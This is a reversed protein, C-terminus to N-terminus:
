RGRRTLELYEQRVATVAPLNPDADKWIALADQYARQAGPSDNLRALARGLAARVFGDVEGDIGANRMLAEFTAGAEEYQGAAFQSLGRLYIAGGGFIARPYPLASELVRVAEAPRGRAFLIRAHVTPLFISRALTHTQPFAQEAEALRAEAEGLAGSRAFVDAARSVLDRSTVIKLATRAQAQADQGLGYAAETEAQDLLAAAASELRGAARHIEAAQQRLRGADALRGARAARGARLGAAGAPDKADLWALEREAAAEDRTVAAAFYLGVHMAVSERGRATAEAIVARAEDIRGLMVYCFAINDIPFVVDPNLRSAERFAVAAEEFQGLLMRRVGASNFAVWDRPYARQSQEYTVIAKPFDGTVISQYRGIIDLRERESARDRREYAKTLYEAAAAPEGINNYAAGLRAYALAFNPDLEIARTLLPIAQPDKAANRLAQAGTFAKLAELSSTTAEELPADFTRISALSEGLRGRLTNVADGLARLVTEKSSAEEQARALSEGTACHQAELTIVYQSGLAAITGALMAKGNQRQCVERGVDSTLRSDPSRGMLQLTQRVRAEPLINLFPSEDLKVALAQKLTDDFIADGTTNAVDAILVVDRDTLAPVARPYLLVALVGLVGVGLAPLLVRPRRIATPLRALSGSRAATSAHSASLSAAAAAPGSGAAPSTVSPTVEPPDPRVTATVSVSRSAGSDRLLRKLDARLDAATQYRLERDKDLLRSVIRELDAPVDPNLRVLPTPARNLIADFIVAHTDGHFPRVRTAMEYLVVGLSFLDSRADLDRGRAQEPSMYAVTGLTTGPSTVLAEEAALNTELSGESSPHAAGGLKALGFDLVKAHGRSTVFINAPKVDRHIIGKAHAADLADAIQAGLDLMTDVDLPRGAIVHKLTAGELREMVIFQQGTDDVQGIDHITCINPHNLASAARAERQFREVSAADSSAELPLFKVAVRRGLRMDEAEYVVGMGGGGLRDLIRYHSIQRGTM